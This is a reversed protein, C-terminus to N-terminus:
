EKESVSEGGSDGGSIPAPAPTAYPDNRLTADTFGHDKLLEAFEQPTPGDGDDLEAMAEVVDRFQWLASWSDYFSELRAANSGGLNHWRVFMEGSTGGDEGSLGLNIAETVGDRFPNAGYYWAESEIVFERKCGEHDRM